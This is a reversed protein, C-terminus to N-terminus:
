PASTQSKYHVCTIENASHCKWAIEFFGGQWGYKLWIFDRHSSNSAWVESIVVFWSLVQVSDHLKKHSQILWVFMCPMMDKHHIGHGVRIFNKGHYEANFAFHADLPGRNSSSIYLTNIALDFLAVLFPIQFYFIAVSLSLNIQSCQLFCHWMLSDQKSSM